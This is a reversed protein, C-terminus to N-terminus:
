GHEEAVVGAKEAMAVVWGHVAEYPRPHARCRFTRYGLATRRPLEATASAAGHPCPM